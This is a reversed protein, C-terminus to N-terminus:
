CSLHLHARNCNCRPQLERLQELTLRTPLVAGVDVEAVMAAVSHRGDRAAVTVGGDASDGFVEVRGYM